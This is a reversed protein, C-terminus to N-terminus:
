FFFLFIIEQFLADNERERKMSWLQSDVVTVKGVLHGTQWFVCHVDRQGERVCVCQVCM